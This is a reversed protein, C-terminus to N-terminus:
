KGGKIVAKMAEAWKHVVKAKASASLGGQALKAASKRAISIHNKNM